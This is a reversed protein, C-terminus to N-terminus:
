AGVSEFFTWMAEAASPTGAGGAPWMHSGGAYLDVAVERGGVCSTWITATLRGEGATTTAATCGDAVRYDAAEGQVTPTVFAGASKPTGGPGITLEGDGTSAVELLSVAGRNPCASVATAGYVAVGAFAAPDDCALTLAMKGGNSYGALYVRSPDADPQSALVRHLVDTLFGVDDVGASMAPTCCNGANWSEQYGAPYVMIVAGAVNAFATRQEEFQPTVSHGHLVMLVPLPQGSLAAPRTVLYYRALGGYTLTVETTVWHVVTTSPAAATPTSTIPAPTAPRSTVISGSVVAVAVLAAVATGAVSATMM